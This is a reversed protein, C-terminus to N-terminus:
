KGAIVTAPRDLSTTDVILNGSQPQHGPLYLTLSADLTRGPNLRVILLVLFEAGVKPDHTLEDISQHDLSSPQVSFRPHSHWEGIYNFRTYVHQTRTFFGRLAKLAQTASRVFTVMTGGRCQFTMESVVFEGPALQEAMLIGGIERSGASRLEDKLQRLSESKLRLTLM